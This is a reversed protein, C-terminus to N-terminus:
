LWRGPPFAVVESTPQRGTVSPPFGPSKPSSRGAIPSGSVLGRRPQNVDTLPSLQERKIPLGDLLQSDWVLKFRDLLGTWSAVSYSVATEGFLKLEMYEGISVWRAVERFLRPNARALWRFRAPLYSPHFRCGTRDHLLTEDFDSRLQPVEGEARTDAYTTLPTIARNNENLGLINNVFTCTAVGGIRSQLHSMRGLLQDLCGFVVQLLADPDAEAAGEFTAQIEHTQRAEM